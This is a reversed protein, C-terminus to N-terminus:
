TCNMTFKLVVTNLVAVKEIVKCLGLGRTVVDGGPRCRCRSCCCCCDYVGGIVELEVEDKKSGGEGRRWM